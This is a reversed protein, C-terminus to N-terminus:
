DQNDKRKKNSNDKSKDEVDETHNHDRKNQSSEEQSAGTNSSEGEYVGANSSQMHNMLNIDDHKRSEAMRGHHSEEPIEGTTTFTERETTLMEGEFSHMTLYMRQFMDEIREPRGKLLEEQTCTDKSSSAEAISNDKSSSAETTSSDKGINSTNTKSVDKDTQPSESKSKSDIDSEDSSLDDGDLSLNCNGTLLGIILVFLIKM